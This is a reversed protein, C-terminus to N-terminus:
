KLKWPIGSVVFYVENGEKALYQNIRGAIDRFARALKNHPVIGLGVENTVLVTKVPAKKCVNVLRVIEEFVSAEISSIEEPTICEWNLEQKLMLNTILLTICDLLIADVQNQYAGIVDYLKEYGEHTIWNTARRERHKKIRDRMEDDYAEATAIYLVKGELEKLIEEAFTSKGSRAGGTILVLPKNDM